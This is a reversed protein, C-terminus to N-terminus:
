QLVNAAEQRPPDDDLLEIQGPRELRLFPGYYWGIWGRVRLRRGALHRLDLGVQQFRAVEWLDLGITFDRRWDEEFNLYLFRRQESVSFVRGEVLGFGHVQGNYPSARAIRFAGGARWHGKGDRRAKRELALLAAQKPGGRGDALALGAAVVDGNLWRGDPLYANGVLRGYRDPRDQLAQWEVPSSAIMESIFREAPRQIKPSPLLIGALRLREGASTVLTLGEEVRIVPMGARAVGTTVAMIVACLVLIKVGTRMPRM